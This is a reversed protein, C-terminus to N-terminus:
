SEFVGPHQVTFALYLNVDAHPEVGALETLVSTEHWSTVMLATTKGGAGGAGVTVGPQPANVTVGGGEM